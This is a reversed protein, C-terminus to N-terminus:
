KSHVQLWNFFRELFGTMSFHNVSYTRCYKRSITDISNIANVWSHFDESVLFGTYKNKILNSPGGYNHAIAPTGCLLSEIIVKGYAEIWNATHLLVKSSALENHYTDGKLFGAYQILDMNYKEQLRNWYDHDEIFGCITLPLNSYNSLKLALEINKEASIRGAWILGKTPLENFTFSNIPLGGGIIFPTSYDICFSQFQSETLFSFHDPSKLYCKRFLDLFSKSPCSMSVYHFLNSYQLEFLPLDFSFNVIYDYHHSYNSLYSTYSHILSKSSYVCLDTHQAPSSYDGNCKIIDVGLDSTSDNSALISISYSHILENVLYRLTQGVGGSKGSQLSSVSSSILLLKM